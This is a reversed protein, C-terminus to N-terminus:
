KSVGDCLHREEKNIETNTALYNYLLACSQSILNDLNINWLIVTNDWSLSALTKGDPSFNVSRIIGNHGRFTAIESGDLRWLKINKDDGASVVTKGDPSFNVSRIIGNHGRFTAIESGDLRWLKINKDDGASVVTKGDPSFKIDRVTESHGKLTKIEFKNLERLTINKDQSVAILIRDNSKLYFNLVEIKGSSIAVNFRQKLAGNKERLEIIGNEYGIVIIESNNYNTVLVEPSDRDPKNLVNLFTGDRKWLEVAGSGKSIVMVNSDPSFSVGRVSETKLKKSVTANDNNINWFKITADDSASVLTDGEPSFSINNIAGAHANITEIETGDINRLQIEGDYSASAIINGNPHFSVSLVNDKHQSLTRIEKGDLDWLKVTGDNGASALHKRNPSFSITNVESKHGQLIKKSALDLNWLEVVGQYGNNVYSNSNNIVAISKGDPSFIVSDGNFYYTNVKNVKTGDFKWFTIIDEERSLIDKRSITAIMTGDPSFSVSDGLLSTIKAGDTKRLTIEGENSAATIMKGDPSFSVSDGPLSTIKTGDTKWLTIKGENQEWREEENSAAAITKGDLSFSIKKIPTDHNIRNRETVQSLIYNLRIVTEMKLSNDYINKQSLLRGAQTAAMLAELQQNSKLFSEAQSNLAEIQTKQAQQYTITGLGVAGLGLIGIIGTVIRAQVLQRKERRKQRDREEICGAIFEQSKVSLEDAYKIYFEEAQALAAGRLLYDTKQQNVKWEAAKEEIRERLRIQERNEDLWWRLQQWNRILIEHAIEVTVESNLSLQLPQLTEEKGKPKSEAQRNTILDGDQNSMVILRSERLIDLTANILEQSYKPIVLESLNRRRRTDEQGEGLSVLQTFIWEACEQQPETLGQYVLDARDQLVKKIGGIKERYMKLSLSGRDRNEWLQELTFELLPLAGKEVLVEEVLVDVLESQVSLGVRTAPATIIQRYESETLYSPIFIPAQKVKEGLEPIELCSAMFDNRLTIIVKFRDGAYQLAGFILALFRDRHVNSTLTFLEEFQDIVLVGMAQTQQRLWTVFSEVGLHLIGELYDPSHRDSSLTVALEQIPHEGPRLIWVQCPKSLNDEPAFIGEQLLRPIVGAQVLSSKGSGSAGVVPLFATTELQKIIEQTLTDRGFFSDKDQPTFAELGKYPCYNRDVVVEALQQGQPLIVDIAGKDSLYFDRQEKNLIGQSYFATQFQNILNTATLGKVSNRDIIEQFQKGLWDNDTSAAIILQPKNPQKLTQIQRDIRDTQSCDLIIIQQEIPSDSLEQALWDRPIEIEDDFVFLIGRDSTEFKGKLYLLATKTTPSQLLASISDQISEEKNPYPQYTFRGKASLSQSLEISKPSPTYGDIILAGRKKNDIAFPSSLGLIFEGHGKVLRQPTFSQYKVHFDSRNEILQWFQNTRDIYELTKYFVYHYLEDAKIVSNSLGGRLGEILYYTFLGHGIEAIELSQQDRDCATIGYIQPNNQTVQLIAEILQSAMSGSHCADLWILQQKAASATIKALVSKILLGTQSLNQKETEKVCLITNSTNNDYDGHGSFYFLVTDEPQAQTFIDLSALINDREPAIITSNLPYRSSPRDSHVKITVDDFIAETEPLKQTAVQQLAQALGLADDACFKLDDIDDDLYRDVGVIVAWLKAKRKTLDRQNSDTLKKVKPM